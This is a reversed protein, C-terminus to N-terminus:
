DKPVANPQEGEEFFLRVNELTVEAINQLAEATFFAQHGTVLVNPYTLLLALNDDQLISGSHDEFFYQTEEEYVDLGAAGIVRSKLGALLDGTRILKGRGTNIIMVGSKMQSIAAQDILHVNEDTLPCHLSIIDSSNYLEGLSVYEVGKELAWQEDPYPDFARVLMGFGRLLECMIRGIKGTGIVGGARSHMDFGMLGALSFNGDRTRGYARHTKRNLTLIMALAHEAVAHPSYAPVRVVEIAGEISRIDVNNYGSCRLAILKVGQDKLIQGVEATVYDNVFICVTDVDQALVATQPSLRGEFFLIEYGFRENMESFVSQDYPKADFFAIRKSRDIM